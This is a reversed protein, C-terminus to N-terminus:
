FAATEFRPVTMGLMLSPALSSTTVKLFFLRQCREMILRTLLRLSILPVNSLSTDGGELDSAFLIQLDFSM